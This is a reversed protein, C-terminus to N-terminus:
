CAFNEVFGSQGGRGLRNEFLRWTNVTGPGTPLGTQPNPLIADVLRNLGDYRQETMGTPDITVRTNGDSDYRYSTVHSPAQPQPSPSIVEVPRNLNDYVTQTIENGPATVTTVNGNNDYGYSTTLNTPEVVSTKRHLDDYLTTTTQGQPDTVTYLEGLANYQYATLPRTQPTGIGGTPEPGLVFSIRNLGDYYNNTVPRVGVTRASPREARVL